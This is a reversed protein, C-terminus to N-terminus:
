RGQRKNSCRECLIEEDDKVGAPDAPSFARGCDGCRFTERALWARFLEEWPDPQGLAWEDFQEGYTVKVGSERM